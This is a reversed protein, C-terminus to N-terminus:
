RSVKSFNQVFKRYYGALALFSRHEDSNSPRHYIKIKDTKTSDTELGEEGVTHGLLNVMKQLFFCKEPSLKIGHEKLRNLIMDLRQLHQVHSSSVSILDDLYLICIKMNLSGLCEEIIRQFTAPSNVLGFPLKNFEWFGLPGLTFANLPKHDEEMLTVLVFIDRHCELLAFL